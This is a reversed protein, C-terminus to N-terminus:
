GDDGTTTLNTSFSSTDVCEFKWRGSRRKGEWYFGDGFVPVIESNYKVSHYFELKVFAKSGKVKFRSFVLYDVFGDRTVKANIEDPSIIDLKVRSEPFFTFTKINLSSLVLGKSNFESYDEIFQNLVSEIIESKVKASLRLNKTQSLCTLSLFTGIVLILLGQRLVNLKM